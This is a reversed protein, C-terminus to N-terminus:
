APGVPRFPALRQAEADARRALTTRCLRPESRDAPGFLGGDQIWFGDPSFMQRHPRAHLGLCLLTVIAGGAAVLRAEHLLARRDRRYGAILRGPRPGTGPLALFAPPDPLLPQSVPPPRARGEALGRELSDLLAAVQRPELGGSVMHRLARARQGARLTALAAPWDRQPAHRRLFVMSSAGIEHLSLPVRDGRRRASAAYGHHVQAGPVIATLGGRAALRLNVDAEDLYFRYAPDFGGIALLDARRFACNTGQTKVALAATGAHLSVAGHDVDLPQDQGLYDVMSARWQYSIGNRGRVFGGAAVVREDAFPAVLRSLWTPEPVADDDLFAVVDSAAQALGLNRAASINPEDYAVLKVPLGLAQVAACAAPDAVVILEFCPHDMQGIGTIARLLADPRHRSVVVLSAPQAALAPIAAAM